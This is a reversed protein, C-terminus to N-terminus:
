KGNLEDRDYKALLKLINAQSNNSMTEKKTFDHPYPPGSRAGPYIYIHTHDSVSDECASAGIWGIFRGRSYIKLTVGRCARARAKPKPCM